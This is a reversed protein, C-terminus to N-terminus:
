ASPETQFCCKALFALFFFLSIAMVIIGAIRFKDGKYWYMSMGIYASTMPIALLFRLLTAALSLHRSDSLNYDFPIGSSNFLLPYVLIVFLLISVFLISFGNIFRWYIIKREITYIGLFPLVFPLILFVLILYFIYFVSFFLTL